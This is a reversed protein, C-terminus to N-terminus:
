QNKKSRKRGYVIEQEFSEIVSIMMAAIFGAAFGNTYLNFGGQFAATLSIVCMHLFGAILGVIFKYRGSIPSLATVFFVAIQINITDFSLGTLLVTIIAGLIVPLINKIHKGMASFGAVTLISAALPGSMEFGLILSLSLCFLVNIGINLYVADHKYDRIFDMLLRGSRTILKKYNPFSEKHNLLGILLNFIAFGFLIIYIEVSHDYSIIDYTLYPIEFVTVIGYILMSLLGMTFGVNYLNYGSHFIIVHSGIAPIVFGVVVGILIALPISIYLALDLGFMFFSVVPSIGSSFLISIILTRYEIKKIKSYVFLGLYIPIFNITNKGFFSFGTIVLLGAYIPGTIRLNLKKILILNLTLTTAVNFLTSNVGGVTIYDTILLSPSTLIDLYGTFLNSIDGVTFSLVFLLIVFIPLFMTKKCYIYFNNVM